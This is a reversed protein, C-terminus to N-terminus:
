SSLSSTSAGIFVLGANPDKRYMIKSPIKKTTEKFVIGFEELLDINTRIEKKAKKVSELSEISYGITKLLDDMEIEWKPDHTWFFRIIAKLLASKVSLLKDLEKSYGISTGSEIFKRYRSTFVIGWKGEAESYDYNSIISFSKGRKEGPDFIEIATTHIEDLKKKFWTHNEIASDGGYKRLVDVRDFYVAISGDELEKTKIASAFICDVIDRHVQTLINGKVLMRGWTKSQLERQKGNQVFNKYILSSATIQEIPAWVGTRLEQLSANTCEFRKVIDLEFRSQRSHEKKKAM